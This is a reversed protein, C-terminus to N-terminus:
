ELRSKISDSTGFTSYHILVLVLAHQDLIIELYQNLIGVLPLLSCMKVRERDWELACVSFVPDWSSNTNEPGKGTEELDM